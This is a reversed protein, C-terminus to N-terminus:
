ISNRKFYDLCVEAFENPAQNIMNLTSNEGSLEALEHHAFSKDISAFQESADLGKGDLHKTAMEGKICITPCKVQKAMEMMNCEAILAELSKEDCGGKQRRRENVWFDLESQVVRLKLDPDL